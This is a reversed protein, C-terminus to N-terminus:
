KNNFQLKDSRLLQPNVRFYNILRQPTMDPSAGLLQIIVYRRSTHVTSYPIHEFNSLNKLVNKELTWNMGFDATQRIRNKRLYYDPSNIQLGNKTSHLIQGSNLQLAVDSYATSNMWKLFRSRMSDSDTFLLRM